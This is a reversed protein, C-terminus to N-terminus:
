INGQKTPTAANVLASFLKIFEPHHVTLDEPHWQVGVIFPEYKNEVGEIIGDCSMATVTLDKGLGKISQHHTTIGKIPKM